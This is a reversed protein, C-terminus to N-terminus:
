KPSTISRHSVYKNWGSKSKALEEAFELADYKGPDSAEKINSVLSEYYRLPVACEDPSLSPMASMLEVACGNMFKILENRSKLKAARAILIDINESLHQRNPSTLMVKYTTVGSERFDEFEEEIIKLRKSPELSDFLAPDSIENIENLLREYLAHTVKADGSVRNVEKKLQEAEEGVFDLLHNKVGLHKELRKLEEVLRVERASKEELTEDLSSIKAQKHAVQARLQAIERELGLAYDQWSDVAAQQQMRVGVALGAAMGAGVANSMTENLSM